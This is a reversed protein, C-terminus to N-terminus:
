CTAGSFWHISSSEHGKQFPPWFRLPWIATKCPVPVPYWYRNDFPDAFFIYVSSMMFLDTDISAHQASFPIKFFVVEYNTWINRSKQNKFDVDSRTWSPHAGNIKQFKLAKLWWKSVQWQYGGSMNSINGELSLNNPQMMSYLIFYDVNFPAVELTRQKLLGAQRNSPTSSIPRAKKGNNQEMIQATQQCNNGAGGLDHRNRVPDWGSGPQERWRTKNLDAGWVQRRLPLSEWGQVKWFCIGLAGKALLVTGLRPQDVPTKPWARWLPFGITLLCWCESIFPIAHPIGKSEWSIIIEYDYHSTLRPWCRRFLLPKWVFCAEFFWWRSVWEPSPFKQPVESSSEPKPPLRFGPITKFRQYRKVM